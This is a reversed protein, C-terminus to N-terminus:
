EYNPNGKDIRLAERINLMASSYEEQMFQTVALNYFAEDYESDLKVAREYNMAAKEPIGL